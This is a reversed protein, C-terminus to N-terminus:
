VGSGAITILTTLQNTFGNPFTKTVITPNNYAKMNDDRLYLNYQNQQRSVIARLPLFQNKYTMLVDVKMNLRWLKTRVVAVDTIYYYRGFDEIYAYNYQSLNDAEVLMTFDLISSQEKMSGDLVIEDTLTKNVKENESNTKYLKIVM